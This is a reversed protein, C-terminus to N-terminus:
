IQKGNKEEALAEEVFERANALTRDLPTEHVPPAHGNGNGGPKHVSQFGDVQWRRLIAGAYKWSRKNQRASEQLAAIVWDKQYTKEADKLDEAITPTLPGIEREYVSFIEGSTERSGGTLEMGNGKLETRKLNEEKLGVEQRIDEPHNDDFQRIDEQLTETQPAPIESAPEREKRLGPQNKEFAPFSIYRDGDAFYLFILGSEHMINLYREVQETDIDTRRPFVMSKVLAADGYTRGERDAFSILWSFLLRCTDDPLDNVRKDRAISNNLMRGRAM